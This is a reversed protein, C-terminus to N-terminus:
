KLKGMLLIIYVRDSVLQGIDKLFNSSYEDANQECMKTEIATALESCSDRMRFMDLTMMRTMQDLEDYRMQITQTLEQGCRGIYDEEAKCESINCLFAIAVVVVLVSNM